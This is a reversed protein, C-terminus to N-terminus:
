ALQGEVTADPVTLLADGAPAPDFRDLPVPSEAGTRGTVLLLCRSSPPFGSSLKLAM